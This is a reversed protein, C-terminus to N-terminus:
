CNVKLKKIFGGLQKIVNESEIKVQEFAEETILNDDKALDFGSVVENTSSISIELYRAFDKDSNKASGEAINLLISNCARYIQKGLTYQEDKPFKKILAKVLKRLNKADKYVKFSLYRFTKM